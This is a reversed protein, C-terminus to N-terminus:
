QSRRFVAGEATGQDDLPLLCDREMQAADNAQQICPVVRGPDLRCDALIMDVDDDPQVNGAGEGAHQEYVALVKSRLPECASADM